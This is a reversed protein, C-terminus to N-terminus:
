AARAARPPLWLLVLVGILNLFVVLAVGLWPSYGKRAAMYVAWSLVAVVAGVILAYIAGRGVADAFGLGNSLSLLFGALFAIVIGAIVRLQLTKM